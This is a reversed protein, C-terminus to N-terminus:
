DLKIRWTLTIRFDGSGSPGESWDRPIDGFFLAASLRHRQLRIHWLLGIDLLTHRATNWRLRSILKWRVLAGTRLRAELRLAHNHPASNVPYKLSWRITLAASSGQLAAEAALLSLQPSPMIISIRKWQAEFELRWIRTRWGLTLGARGGPMRTGPSQMFPIRGNLSALPGRAPRYHFDAAAGRSGSVRRGDANRFFDSGWSGRFRLRWASSTWKLAASALVGPRYVSGASGLATVGWNWGRAAGRIRLGAIGAEAAPRRTRMHLAPYWKKEAKLPHLSAAEIFFEASWRDLELPVAWARFYQGSKRKEWGGGYRGGPHHLLIGFRPASVARLDARYVTRQGLRSLSGYGPNRLEAALGSDSLSGLTIWPSNLGGAAELPGPRGLAAGSGSLLPLRLGLGLQWDGWRFIGHTRLRGAGDFGLASEINRNAHLFAPAAIFACLAAAAAAARAWTRAWARARLKKHKM